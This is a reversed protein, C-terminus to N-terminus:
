QVGTRVDICAGVRSRDLVSLVILSVIVKSCRGPWPEEANFHRGEGKGKNRVHKALLKCKKCDIGRYHQEIYNLKKGTSAIFALSEANKSSQFIRILLYRCVPQTSIVLSCELSYCISTDLSYKHPLSIFERVRVWLQVNINDQKKLVFIEVKLVNFTSINKNLSLVIFIHDTHPGHGPAKVKCIVGRNSIIRFMNNAKNESIQHTPCNM